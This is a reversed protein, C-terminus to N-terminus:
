GNSRRASGRDGDQTPTEAKRHKPTQKGRRKDAGGLWTELNQRAGDRLGFSGSLGVREPREGSSKGYPVGGGQARGREPGAPKIGGATGGPLNDTDHQNEIGLTQQSATRHPAAKRPLPEFRARNSEYM